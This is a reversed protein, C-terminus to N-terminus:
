RREATIYYQGGFPCWALHKEVGTIQKLVGKRPIFFTFRRCKIRGGAEKILQELKSSTLLKANEDFPCTNVAHLTLPNLPNHEFIVLKGDPKLVRLCERVVATRLYPIIHHMVCAMYVMDFTGSEFPLRKGDYILFRYKGGADAYTHIAQKVSDKSIDIGCYDADPFYSTIFKAANGDGCGYDLIAPAKKLKLLGREAIEKIKYETFFDSDAGSFGINKDHIRRYEGAFTDFENKM